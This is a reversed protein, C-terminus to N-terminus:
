GNEEGIVRKSVFFGNQKNSTNQLAEDQSLSTSTEDKRTVNTQGSVNFTPEVGKTDVSNLQEIYDLIKTFQETYKHSEEDTLPVNALKAIKSTDFVATIKPKM